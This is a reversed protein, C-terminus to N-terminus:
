DWLAWFNKSLFNFLRDKRMEREENLRVREANWKVDAEPTAKDNLWEEISEFNDLKQPYAESYADTELEEFTVLCWYADESAQEIAEKWGEFTPWEEGAPWGQLEDALKQLGNTLVALLYSDFGWTDVTSVGYKIREEAAKAFYPKNEELEHGDYRM